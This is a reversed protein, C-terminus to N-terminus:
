LSFKHLKLKDEITQPTWEKLFQDIKYLTFAGQYPKKPLDLWFKTQPFNNVYEKPESCSFGQSPIPM